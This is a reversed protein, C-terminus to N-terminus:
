SAENMVPAIRGTSPTLRAIPRQALLVKEALSMAVRLTTAREQACGSVLLIVAMLILLKSRKM